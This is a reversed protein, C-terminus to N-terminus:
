TDSEACRIRPMFFYIAAAFGVVKKNSPLPLGCPLPKSPLYLWRPTCHATFVTAPLRADDFIHMRMHQAVAVGRM